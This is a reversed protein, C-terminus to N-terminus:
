RNKRGISMIHGTAGLMTLESEVMRLFRLLRERLVEDDWFTDFDSMFGVPGEVALTTEVQFGAETLEAQLETPYHFYATTFYGPQETPNRHQGDVLDRETLEAFHPDALFSRNLGDLLSAFRSIAAAFLIGSPKLVRYAECLAALRETREPLHYLPGLLLVAEASADPFDLQRADGVRASALPHDPQRDSASKAQEIHLPVFDVLHVTYGTQALWLAYIGAGGGIDLVTVPSKPLYRLIIEQTRALELKASGRTLRDHERGQNYYGHIDDLAM